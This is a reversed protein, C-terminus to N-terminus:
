DSTPSVRLVWPFVVQGVPASSECRVHVGLLAQISKPETKANLDAVILALGIISPLYKNRSSVMQFWGDMDSQSRSNM